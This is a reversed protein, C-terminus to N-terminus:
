KRCKRESRRWIQSVELGSSAGFTNGSISAGEFLVLHLKRGVSEGEVPALYSKSGVSASEVPALHSKGAVSAVEVPALHGDHLHYHRLQLHVDTVVDAGGDDRSVDFRTCWSADAADGSDSVGLQHM